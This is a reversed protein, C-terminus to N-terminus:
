VSRYFVTLFFQREYLTLRIFLLQRLSDLSYSNYLTEFYFCCFVARLSYYLNVRRLEATIGM